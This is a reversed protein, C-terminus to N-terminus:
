AGPDFDVTGSFQGITYVNGSSDVAVSRGIDPGTGGFVAVSVRDGAGLVANRETEEGVDGAREGSSGCAASVLVLAVGVVLARIKKLPVGLLFLPM